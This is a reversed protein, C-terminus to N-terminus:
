MANAQTRDGFLLLDVTKRAAAVCENADAAFSHCEDSEIGGKFPAFLEAAAAAGDLELIPRLDAVFRAIAKAKGLGQSTGDLEALARAALDESLGECLRELEDVGAVYRNLKGPAGKYREIAAALARANSMESPLQSLVKPMDM